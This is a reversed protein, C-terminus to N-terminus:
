IERTEKQLGVMVLYRVASSANGRWTKNAYTTVPKWEENSFRIVKNKM